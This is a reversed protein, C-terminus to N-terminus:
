VTGKNIRQNKQKKRNNKREIKWGEINKKEFQLTDEFERFPIDNYKVDPPLFNCYVICHCTILHISEVYSSPFPNKLKEYAMRHHIAYDLVSRTFKESIQKLCLFVDYVSYEIMMRIQADQGNAVDEYSLGRYPNKGFKKFFLAAFRRLKELPRAENCDDAIWTYINFRYDNSGFKFAAVVRYNSYITVSINCPLSLIPIQFSGRTVDSPPCTLKFNLM